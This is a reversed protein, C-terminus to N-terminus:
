FTWFVGISQSNKLLVLIIQKNVQYFSDSLSKCFMLKLGPLIPILYVPSNDTLYKPFDTASITM